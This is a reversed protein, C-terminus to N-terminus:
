HFKRCCGFFVVVYIGSMILCKSFLAIVITENRWALIYPVWLAIMCIISLITPLVTRIAYYKWTIINSYLVFSILRCLVCVVLCVPLHPISQFYYFIFSGVVGIDFVRDLIMLFSRNGYYRYVWCDAQPEVAFDVIDIHAIKMQKYIKVLVATHMACRALCDCVPIIVLAEGYWALIMPFHLTASCFFGSIITPLVTRVTYCKFFKTNSYLAFSILRLIVYIGLCIDWHPFSDRFYLVFLGVFEVDTMRDFVMLYRRMAHYRYFWKRKTLEWVFRVIDDDVINVLSIVKFPHHLANRFTWRIFM